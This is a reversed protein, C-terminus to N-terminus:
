VTFFQLFLLIIKGLKVSGDYGILVNNSKIDRHMINNRHLYQLGKLMERCIAATESENMSGKRLLQHLTIPFYEM